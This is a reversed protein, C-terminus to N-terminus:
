IEGVFLFPLLINLSDGLPATKSGIPNYSYALRRAVIDIVAPIVFVAFFFDVVKYV